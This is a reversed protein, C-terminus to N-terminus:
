ESECEGYWGNVWPCVLESIKSNVLWSEMYKMAWAGVWDGAWLFWGRLCEVAWEGRTCQYRCYHGGAAKWERMTWRGKGTVSHPIGIRSTNASGGVIFIPPALFIL